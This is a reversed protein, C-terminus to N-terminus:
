EDGGDEGGGAGEMKVESEGDENEASEEEDAAAVAVTSTAAKKGKKVPSKRPKKEPTAEVDEEDGDDTKKGRKKPTAKAKAKTPTKTPTKATDGMDGAEDGEGEDGQPPVMAMLKKKITGWTNSATKTTNFGGAKALKEVDVDPPGSKLCTWAVKLVREEKETFVPKEPSKASSSAPSGGRSPVAAM